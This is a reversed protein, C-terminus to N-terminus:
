LPSPEALPDFGFQQAMARRESRFDHQPNIIILASHAPDAVEELTKPSTERIPAGEPQVRPM